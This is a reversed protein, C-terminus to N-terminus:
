RVSILRMVTSSGPSWKSTSFFWSSCYRREFTIPVANTRTNGIFPATLSHVKLAITIPRVMTFSKVAILAICLDPFCAAEEPNQKEIGRSVSRSFRRLSRMKLSGNMLTRSSQRIRLQIIGRSRIGSRTPTPRSTSWVDPTSEDKLFAWLRVATGDM